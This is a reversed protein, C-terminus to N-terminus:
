ESRSSRGRTSACRTSSRPRSVAASPMVPGTTVTACSQPPIMESPQAAAAGRAAARRRAPWCRPAGAAVTRRARQQDPQRVHGTISGPRRGTSAATRGSWWRASRAAAAAPRGRRRRRARRCADGLAARHALEDGVNRERGAMGTARASSAIASACRRRQVHRRQQQPTRPVRDEQSSCRRSRRCRSGCADAAGTRSPWGGAARPRARVVRGRDPTAQPMAGLQRDALGTRRSVTPRASPPGPSGATPAPRAPRGPRRRRARRRRPPRGRADAPGVQVGPDPVGGGPHGGGPHPRAVPHRQQHRRRDLEGHRQVRHPPGARTITTTPGRAQAQAAHAPRQAAGLMSWRMASVAPSSATGASARARCGSRRRRPRRPAAAPRGPRAVGHGRQGPGATAQGAARPAPASSSAATTNVEPAVPGALPTSYRCRCSRAWSSSIRGGVADGGVIPDDGGEGREREVPRRQAHRRRHGGGVDGLGARQGRRRQGVGRRGDVRRHDEGRGAASAFTSAVAPSSVVACRAASRRTRSSILAPAGTGAASSRRSVSSSGFASSCM